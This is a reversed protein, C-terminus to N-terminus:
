AKGSSRPKGEPKLDDQRREGSGDADENTREGEPGTTDNVTKGAMNGPNFHFKGPPQEDPKTKQDFDKAKSM